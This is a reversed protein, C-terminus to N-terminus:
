ALLPCYYGPYFVAYVVKAVFNLLNARWLQFGDLGPLYITFIKLVAFTMTVCQGVLVINHVRSSPHFAKQELVIKGASYLLGPHGDPKHTSSRKIIELKGGIWVLWLLRSSKGM